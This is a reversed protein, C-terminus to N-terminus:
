SPTEPAPTPRANELKMLFTAVKEATKAHQLVEVLRHDGSAIRIADGLHDLHSFLVDTLFPDLPSPVPAPQRPKKTV